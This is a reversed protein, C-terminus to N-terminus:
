PTRPYSLAAVRCTCSESWLDAKEGEFICKFGNKLFFFTIYYALQLLLWCVKDLCFLDILKM